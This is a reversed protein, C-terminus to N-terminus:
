YEQNNEKIGLKIGNFWVDKREYYTKANKWLSFHPELMDIGSRLLPFKTSDLELLVEDKNLSQL